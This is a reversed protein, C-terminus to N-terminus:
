GLATGKAEFRDDTPDETTTSLETNDIGNFETNM